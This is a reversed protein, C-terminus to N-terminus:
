FDGTYDDPWTDSMRGMLMLLIMTPILVVMAAYSATTALRTKLWDAAHNCFITEAHGFLTIAALMLIFKGAFEAWHALEPPLVSAVTFAGIGIMARISARIFLDATPTMERLIAKIM